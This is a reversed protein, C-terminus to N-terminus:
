ICYYAARFWIRYERSTKLETKPNWCKKVSACTEQEIQAAIFIPKTLDPFYKKAESIIVPIYQDSAQIIADTIM